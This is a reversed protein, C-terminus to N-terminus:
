SKLDCHWVQRKHLYLLAIAIQKSLRLITEDGMVIKQKHLLDFLSGRTACETVMYFHQQSPDMSIGMYLVINPHRLSNLMEIEKIFDKLAKKFMYRKGFRKIAVSTGLWTARYVDGYGGGGIFDTKTDFTLDSYNIFECFGNQGLSEIM